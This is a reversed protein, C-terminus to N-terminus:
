RHGRIATLHEPRSNKLRCNSGHALPDPARTTLSADPFLSSPPILHLAQNPAQSSGCAGTATHAYGSARDAPRRGSHDARIALRRVGYAFYFDFVVSCRDPGLPLVLNTDMIVGADAEGVYANIMFNPFAWWYYANSGPRVEAVLPNSIEPGMTGPAAAYAEISSDAARRRDEPSPPPSVPVIPSFQLATNGHVETRYQSYDLVGALGQHITNVHYGGDLYNDVFVKWNCAVDYERREVFQVAGLRLVDDRDCLPLLFDRLPPPNAGLNVWVWKGWADVACPVLGYDERGFDAVGHFEPAGLLRGSLDYTWGHYRCRLRAVQGAPEHVVCAARHRCVNFFARLVGDSARVVVIPEGAITATIFSGPQEVQEARGAVQWTGGFVERCEAAYIEADFYWSSPITAARELPLDPDFQRLKASLNESM